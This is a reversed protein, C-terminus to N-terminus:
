YKAVVPGGFKYDLGLLVTSYTNSVNYAAVGNTPATHHYTGLDYYRYEVKGILNDTIAYALGGGATLGNRNV